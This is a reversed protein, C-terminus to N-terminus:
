CLMEYIAALVGGSLAPLYYKWQYSALQLLFDNDNLIFHTGVRREM